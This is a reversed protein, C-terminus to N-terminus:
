LTIVAAAENRLDEPSDRVLLGPVVVCADGNATTVEVVVQEGPKLIVATTPQGTGGPRGYIYKGQQDLTAVKKLVAVDGDGRGTDSGATVRRDFKIVFPTGSVSATQLVAFATVVECRFPVTLTLKDGTSDTAITAHAMLPICDQNGIM